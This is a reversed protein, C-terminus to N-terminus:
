FEDYLMKLLFGVHHISSEASVAPLPHSIGIWEIGSNLGRKM